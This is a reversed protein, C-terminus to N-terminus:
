ALMGGEDTREVAESLLQFLTMRQRELGARAALYGRQSPVVPLLRLVRLFRHDSLCRAHSGAGALRSVRRPSRLHRRPRDPLAYRRQEQTARRCPRYVAPRDAGRGDPRMTPRVASHAEMGSSSRCSASSRCAGAKCSDPKITRRSSRSSTSTASRMPRVGGSAESGCRMSIRRVKCAHIIAAIFPEQWM